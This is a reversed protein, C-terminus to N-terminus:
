LEFGVTVMEIPGAATYTRTWTASLFLLHGALIHSFEDGIGDLPGDTRSARDGALFFAPRAGVLVHFKDMGFQVRVDGAAALVGSLEDTAKFLHRSTMLGGGIEVEAFPVAFTFRGDGMLTRGRAKGIAGEYRVRSTFGFATKSGTANFRNWSGINVGLVTAGGEADALWRGGIIPRFWADSEKDLDRTQWSGFGELITIDLDGSSVDKEKTDVPGEEASEEEASEEEASEEEASEEEASEEEASEEEASEEEASEEEASEEEASEEEAPETAPEQPDDAWAAASHLAM